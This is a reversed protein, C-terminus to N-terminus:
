DNRMGLEVMLDRIDCSLSFAMRSIEREKSFRQIVNADKRFDSLKSKTKFYHERHKNEEELEEMREILKHVEERSLARTSNIWKINELWEESM